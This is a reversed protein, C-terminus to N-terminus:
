VDGAFVQAFSRKASRGKALDRLTEARGTWIEIEARSIENQANAVFYKDM